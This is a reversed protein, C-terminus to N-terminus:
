LFNYKEIKTVDTFRKLNLIEELVDILKNLFFIIETWTVFNIKQGKIFDYDKGGINVSYNEETHYGSAHLCNRIRAPFNLYDIRQQQNNTFLTNIIETTIARYGKSRPRRGSTVLSINLESAIVKIFVEVEFMFLTLFSARHMTELTDVMLDRQNKSTEKYFCYDNLTTTGAHVPIFGKLLGISTMTVMLLGQWGSHRGDDSRDPEYPKMLLNLRSFLKVFEPVANNMDTQTNQLKIQLDTQSM